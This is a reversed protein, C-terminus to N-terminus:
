GSGSISGHDASARIYSELVQVSALRGVGGHSRNFRSVGTICLSVCVGKHIGQILERERAQEKKKTEGDRELQWTSCWLGANVYSRMKGQKIEM